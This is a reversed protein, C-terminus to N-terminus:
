RMTPRPDDVQEDAPTYRNFGAWMQARKTSSLTAGPGSEGRSQQHEDGTNGM